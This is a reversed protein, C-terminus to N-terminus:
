GVPRTTELATFVADLIAHAGVDSGTAFDLAVDLVAHAALARKKPFADSAVLLLFFPQKSLGHFM